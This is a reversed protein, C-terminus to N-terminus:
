GSCCTRPKGAANRLGDILAQKNAALGDIKKALMDIERRLRSIRADSKQPNNEEAELGASLAKFEHEAAVLEAKVESMESRLM